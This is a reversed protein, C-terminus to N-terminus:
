RIVGVLRHMFARVCDWIDQAEEETYTRTIDHMTPNRWAEKVAHLSARVGECDSKRNKEAPTGIPLKKIEADISNLVDGWADRPNVKAKLTAALEKVGAEMVRMLHFVVATHRGCALCRGAEAIDSSVAPLKNEVEEGFLAKESYYHMKDSPFYMFVKGQLDAEIARKIEGLRTEAERVDPMPFVPNKLRAVFDRIGAVAVNLGLFRAHGGIETLRSELWPMDVVSLLPPSAEHGTLAEHHRCESEVLERILVAFRPLDFDLMDLLSVIQYKRLCAM